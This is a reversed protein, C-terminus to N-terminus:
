FPRSRRSSKHSAANLADILATEIRHASTSAREQAARRKVAEDADLLGLLLYGLALLPFAIAIAPIAINRSMLKLHPLVAPAHSSRSIERNM